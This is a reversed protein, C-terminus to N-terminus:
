GHRREQCSAVMSSLERARHATQFYWESNLMEVAADQYSKSRIFQLTRKFKNVGDFGMQYVMDTLVIQIIEPQTEFWPWGTKIQLMIDMVKERLIVEASAKSMILDKLAFGYGITDFGRGDKYIRPIFGEHKKILEVAKEIM